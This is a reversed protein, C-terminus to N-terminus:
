RQERNRLKQAGILLGIGPALLAVTLLFNWVNFPSMVELFSMEPHNAAGWLVIVGIVAVWNRGIVQLAIRLAKM